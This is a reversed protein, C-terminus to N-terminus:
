VESRPNGVGSKSSLLGRNWGPSHIFKRSDIWSIWLIALFVGMMSGGIVDEFFHESLYMRSFGVMVGYFLLLISWNKNKVLYTVLVGTAFATLTHGSPFSHHSLMEVGKVFHLKSLQDKFYLKPRPAAFFFKAIQVSLSTVVFTTIMLFAVRYNYLALIASLIVITWGNGLDTIYPEVTDLFDSYRTNVAFYIEDKSYILKIVFCGCLLVLYLIFFPRIRQIVDKIAIIM